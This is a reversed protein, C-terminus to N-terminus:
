GPDLEVVEPPGVVGQAAQQDGGVAVKASRVLDESGDLGALAGVAQSFRKGDLLTLEVEEPDGAVPALDLQIQQAL